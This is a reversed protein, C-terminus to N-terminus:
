RMKDAADSQRKWVVLEVGDGAELRGVEVFDGAAGVVSETVPPLTTLDYHDAILEREIAATDPWGGGSRGVWVFADQEAMLEYTGNPDTVV